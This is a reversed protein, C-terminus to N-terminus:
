LQSVPIKHENKKKQPPPPLMGWVGQVFNAERAQCYIAVATSCKSARGKVKLKSIWDQMTLLLNQLTFRKTDMKIVDWKLRLDAVASYKKQM